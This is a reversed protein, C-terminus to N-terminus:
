FTIVRDGDKTVIHDHVDLEKMWRRTTAVGYMRELPGINKEPEIYLWSACCWICTEPAIAAYVEKSVCMHGHHAM